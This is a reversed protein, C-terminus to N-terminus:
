RDLGFITQLIHPGIEFNSSFIFKFSKYRVANTMIQYVSLKPM